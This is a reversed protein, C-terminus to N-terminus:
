AKKKAKHQYMYRDALVYANEMCNKRDHDVCAFGVSFTVGIQETYKGANLYNVKRIITDTPVDVSIVAFEDGGIRFLSYADGEFVSSLFEAAKMLINDGTFHGLEDNIKKFDDMDIVIIHVPLATDVERELENIHQIYAMRNRVGTLADYNAIHYWKKEEELTQNLDHLRKKQFLFSILVIYFSLITLSMLGYVPFYETRTVLPAPYAAAFVLLVYVLATSLMIWNWGTRVHELLERYNPFHPSAFCYILLLAVASLILNAIGAFTGFTLSVARCFFGIILSVTDVFCFTVFFRADKYKSLIFFLVFSPLSMCLFSAVSPPVGFLHTCLTYLLFILSCISVAFCRMGLTDKKLVTLRMYVAIDFLIIMSDCITSIVDFQNINM